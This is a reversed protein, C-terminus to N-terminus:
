EAIRELVLHTGGEGPTAATTFVLKDGPRLEGVHTPFDADFVGLFPGPTAWPRAEGTAPVHLPPPLGARAVAVRGTTPNARVFVASVIPPDALGLAVLSRNVHRLIEGPTVAGAPGRISAATVLQKVLPGFSEGAGALVFELDGSALWADHFDGHGHSQAVFRFPGLEPLRVPTLSRHLARVLERDRDRQEYAKRLRETISAADDGKAHLRNVSERIRLLAHLQAAFLSEDVPRALCVDAGAELGIRTAAPDALWLIPRYRDGLEVRWRRTQAVASEVNEPPCMIAAALPQFDVTPLSGLAHILPTFGTTRVLDRVDDAPAHPPASILITPPADPM